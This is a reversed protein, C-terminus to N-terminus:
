SVYSTSLRGDFQLTLGTGGFFGAFIENVRTGSVRCARSSVRPGVVRFAREFGLGIFGM